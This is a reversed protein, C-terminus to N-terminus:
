QLGKMQEVVLKYIKREKPRRTVWTQLHGLLKALRPFLFNESIWALSIYGAGLVLIFLKFDWKM